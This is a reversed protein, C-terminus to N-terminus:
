NKLDSDFFWSDWGAIENGRDKPVVDLLSKNKDGGIVRVQEGEPWKRCNLFIGGADMTDMGSMTLHPLDDPTLCGYASAGIYIPRHLNLAPEAPTPDAQAVQVSDDSPGSQPNPSSTGGGLIGVALGIILLGGVGIAIGKACSMAM